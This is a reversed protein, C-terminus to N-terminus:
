SIPIFYQTVDDRLLKLSNLDNLLPTEKTFLLCKKEALHYQENLYKNNISCTYACQIGSCDYNCSPSFGFHSINSMKQKFRSVPFHSQLFAGINSIALLNCFCLQQNGLYLLNQRSLQVWITEFLQNLHDIDYELRTDIIALLNYFQWIYGPIGLRISANIGREVITKAAFLEARSTALKLACVSLVMDSRVLVRDFSQGVAIKRIKEASSNVSLWNCNENYYMDYIHQSLLNSYYIRESSEQTPMRNVINMSKQCEKTDQFFFLKSRTRHAIALLSKKGFEQNIQEAIKMEWEVYNYALNYCNYKIYVSALRDVLDFLSQNDFKEPNVLYDSMLEKLVLEGDSLHGANLLAHAKLSTITNIFANDLQSNSSKQIFSFAKKCDCVATMPAFHHLTIYIRAVLAKKAIDWNNKSYLKFIDYLYEYLRIDININSYNSINAIEREGNLFYERAKEKQNLWICLRGVEYTSLYDIFIDIDDVIQKAVFYKYKKTRKLIKKFYLFLSEHIFQITENDGYKIFRRQILEDVMDSDSSFYDQILHLSIEGGLVTLLLLFLLYTDEGHVQILHEFRKQYIESIGNPISDKTPFTDINLIGVTNRNKLEVINADLLYEIYQVIYLPNNMSNKQIVNLAENPISNVTIKIFDRTEDPLFPQVEWCFDKQKDLTWQIFSYYYLQGESYDNRGCIIITVPVKLNYICKVQEIFKKDIYHFNDISIVAHRNYDNTCAKLIDRFSNGIEKKIYKKDILFDKIQKTPDCLKPSLEIIKLDFNRGSIDKYLEEVIRSKGIGAEGWIFFVNLINNPPVISVKLDRLIQCHANGMFYPIFVEKYKIGEIPIISEKNQNKIYLKLEEIGDYSTHQFAFRKIASGFPPLIFSSAEGIMKWNEDTILNITISRNKTTYNRFLIPVDFVTKGDCNKYKLVQYQGCFDPKFDALPINNTDEIGMEYITKALLYQDVLVFEINKQKLDMYTKYYVEPIITANTILVFYDIGDYKSNVVNGIIKDFVLKPKNTSKCEFYITINDKEKLRFDQYFVNKLSIPSKVIIDKGNDGSKPTQEITVGNDFYKELIKTLINFMWDEFEHGNMGDLNWLLNPSKGLERTASM